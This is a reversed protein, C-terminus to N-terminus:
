EGDRRGKEKEMARQEQSIWYWANFAGVTVGALMLALTWSLRGPWTFDIWLGLAIGALTPVAISWGVVGFAGLGFWVSGKAKNRARLHRQAKEGVTEALRAGEIRRSREAHAPSPQDVGDEQAPPIQMRDIPGEVDRTMM